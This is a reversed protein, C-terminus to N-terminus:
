RHADAPFEGTAVEHQAPAILFTIISAVVLTVAGALMAASFGVAFAERAARALAEGEPGFSDAIGIAAGAGADVVQRVQDPIGDLAPKIDSRYFSILVSSLVAIGLVGGVERTIDNVASAVSRREAPLGEIILQTGPTIGMGFGIGFVLVGAGLVWISADVGGALGAACVFLGVGMLLLGLSGPVRAGFRRELAASIGIGAGVGVPVILLALAAGLPTYELVIQLYQPSLVFFGLSAFFQVTVILSGAALGRNAFLRVDLSPDKARLQHVVFAVFGLAGVAFALLTVLDLWGRQPGEVVGFVLGALAIISWLAGLPDLSLRPNRNQAVLMLVPIILAVAVSGFVLQVSGWWYAELLAGAIITGAVAGASSVGSWVGIAFTRREPPYADVLASLTVPFVAAAGVGAIARLAIFWGPDPAFASAVNAAGFILLGMVLITRRGVRDAAIGATLLLAAFTLAYADIIWTLESQDAELDIAIDPLAIALASNGAVVLALAACLVVLLGRLQTPNLPMHPAATTPPLATM